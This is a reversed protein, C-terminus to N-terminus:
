AWFAKSQNRYITSKVSTVGRYFSYVKEFQQTPSLASIHRYCPFSIYVLRGTIYFALLSPLEAHPELLSASEKWTFLAM